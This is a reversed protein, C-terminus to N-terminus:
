KIVKFRDVDPILSLGSGNEWAISINGADDAVDTVVGRTGTPVATEGAMDVCEVLTGVPYKNRLETVFAEDYFFRETRRPDSPEVAVKEIVIHKKEVRLDLADGDNIKLQKRFESPIVIRGMSDICREM